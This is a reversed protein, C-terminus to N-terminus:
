EPDKPNVREFQSRYHALEAMSAQVDYYADHKDGVIVDGGRYYKRINESNGLKKFKPGRHHFNWELKFTTVDFLRYNLQSLFKPLFRRVLFYDAHISNGALTPRMRINENRTEPFSDLYLSLYSDIEEVSLGERDCQSLLPQYNELVHESMEARPPPKLYAVLGDKRLLQPPIGEPRQPIPNLADDSVILAVQLLQARELDLTTYETDFWCYLYRPESM